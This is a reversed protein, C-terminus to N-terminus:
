GQKLWLTRHKYFTLGIDGPIGENGRMLDSSGCGNTSSDTFSQDDCWSGGGVGGPGELARWGMGDQRWLVLFGLGHAKRHNGIDM